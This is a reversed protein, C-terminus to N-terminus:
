RSELQPKANHLSLAITVALISLITFLSLIPGLQFWPAALMKIAAFLLISALGYHLFRLRDLLHALLYYLSRLGMIAMINSTYALFPHSTISLVAPISDLAFILDTLEIAILCLFLVTILPRRTPSEAAPVLFRDQRLSVPHVKALWRLWVPPQESPTETNPMFLRIAAALLILAFIYSIWHFRTLLSLGAAIFAARMPIAGFVGWLLVKPQRAPEIHFFRFLLLFVFLNDISLSEEITYGAIYQIAATHGMSRFIFLAVALAATIWVTTAVIANRHTKDNSSQSSRHRAFSLEAAFLILIFLHFGIWHSPPTAPM